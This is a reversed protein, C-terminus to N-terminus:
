DMGNIILNYTSFMADDFLKIMFTSLQQGLCKVPTLLNHM